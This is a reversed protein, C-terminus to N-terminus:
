KSQSVSTYESVNPCVCGRVCKGAVTKEFLTVPLCFLSRNGDFNSHDIIELKVM